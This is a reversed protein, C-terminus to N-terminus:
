AVGTVPPPPPQPLNSVTLGPVQHGEALKLNQVIVRPSLWRLRGKILETLQRAHDPPLHEDTELWIVLQVKQNRDLLARAVATFDGSDHERQCSWLLGALSDRVKDAVEEALEGQTLRQKNQIRYGRFDKAEFLWLVSDRVGAFEIAKSETLRWRSTRFGPHDDWKVGRWGDDFEFRLSDSEEFVISM